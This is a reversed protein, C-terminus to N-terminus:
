ALFSWPACRLPGRRQFRLKQAEVCSLSLVSDQRHRRQSARAAALLWTRLRRRDPGPRQRAGVCPPLAPLAGPLPPLRKACVRKTKRRQQPPNRLGTARTAPARPRNRHASSAFAAPTRWGGPPLRVLGAKCVRFALLLVLRPTEQHSRCQTTQNKQVGPPFSWPACRLPGRGPFSTKARRPRVFVPCSSTGGRHRAATSCRNPWVAARPSEQGKM